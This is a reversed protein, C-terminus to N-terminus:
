GNFVALVFAVVAVAVVEVAAEAVAVVVDVMARTLVTVAVTDLDVVLAVVVTAAALYACRSKSSAHMYLLYKGCRCTRVGSCALWVAAAACFVKSSAYMCRLYRGCRHVRVLLCCGVRVLVRDLLVASAVLHAHM